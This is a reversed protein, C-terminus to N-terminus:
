ATASALNPQQASIVSNTAVADHQILVDVADLDETYQTTRYIPLGDKKLIDGEAGARKPQMSAYPQETTEIVLIKGPLKSGDVLKNNEVHNVLDEYLGQILATRSSTRLFGKQMSTTSSQVRIFGYDPNAESKTVIENTTPNKTIKVTQNSM